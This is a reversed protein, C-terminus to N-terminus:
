AGLRKREGVAQKLLLMAMASMSRSEATAMERLDAKLAPSLVVGLIEGRGDSKGTTTTM